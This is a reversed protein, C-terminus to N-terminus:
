TVVVTVREAARTIATYLWRSRDERFCCSEDFVPEFAVWRNNMLMIILFAGGLGPPAKRQRAGM